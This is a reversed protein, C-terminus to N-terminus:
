VKVERAIRFVYDPVAYQRDDLVQKSNLLLLPARIARCNPKDRDSTRFTNAISAHPPLRRRALPNASKCHSPKNGM